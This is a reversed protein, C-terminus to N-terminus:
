RLAPKNFFLSATNTSSRRLTRGPRLHVLRIRGCTEFVGGFGPSCRCATTWIIAISQEDVFMEKDGVHGKRTVGRTLYIERRWQLDGFFVFSQINTIIQKNGFRLRDEGAWDVPLFVDLVYFWRLQTIMLLAWWWSVTYLLWDSLYPSSPHSSSSPFSSSSSCTLYSLFPLSVSDLWVRPRM